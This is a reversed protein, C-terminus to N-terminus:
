FKCEVSSTQTTSSSNVEPQTYESATQEEPMSSPNELNRSYEDIEPTHDDVVYDHGYDCYFSGPESFGFKYLNANM